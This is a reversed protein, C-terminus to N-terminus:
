GKQDRKLITQIAAAMERPDFSDGGKSAKGSSKSGGSIPVGSKAYNGNILSDDGKGDDMDEMMPSIFSDSLSELDPLVDIDEVSGSPLAATMAAPHKNGTDERAEETYGEQSQQDLGLAFEEGEEGAQSERESPFSMVTEKTPEDDVSVDVLKGLYDERQTTEVLDATEEDAGTGHPNLLEPTFQSLLWHAGMVLIFFLLAFGLARVLLVWFLAGSFIGLLFSILFAAVAVILGVRPELM